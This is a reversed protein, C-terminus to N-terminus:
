RCSHDSGVLRTALAVKNAQKVARWRDQFGADDAFRELGTSAPSTACGAM